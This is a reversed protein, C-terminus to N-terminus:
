PKLAEKRHRYKQMLMELDPPFISAENRTIECMTIGLGVETEATAINRVLGEIYLTYNGITVAPKTKEAGSVGSASTLSQATSPPAAFPVPREQHSQTTPPATTPRAEAVRERAEMEAVRLNEQAPPADRNTSRRVKALLVSNSEKLAALEDGTQARGLAAVYRATWQTLNEGPGLALTHANTAPPTVPNDAHVKISSEHPPAM